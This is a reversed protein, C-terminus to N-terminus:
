EVADAGVEGGEESALPLVVDGIEVAGPAGLHRLLDGVGHGVVQQMVVGVGVPGIGRAGLGVRQKVVGAGGKGVEEVRRGGVHREAVVHRGDGEMERAAERAIPLGAVLDHDGFEIMVGVDRGPAGDRLLAPEDHAGDRQVGGREVM